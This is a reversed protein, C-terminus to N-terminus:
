GSLMGFTTSSSNHSTNSSDIQRPALPYVYSQGIDISDSSSGRRLNELFRADIPCDPDLIQAFVLDNFQPFDDLTIVPDFSIKALFHGQVNLPQDIRTRVSPQTM